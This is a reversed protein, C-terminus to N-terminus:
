LDDFNVLDGNKIEEKSRKLSEMFKKDKILELTERELEEDSDLDKM